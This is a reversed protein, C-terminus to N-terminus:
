QERQKYYEHILSRYGLGKLMKYSVRYNVKTYRGTSLVRIAQQLYHDIERLGDVKNVIPFYWRAWTLSTDDSNDFFKENFYKILRAMVREQSIAKREKWRLLSRMKRRIKGKMKEISATAIDIDNGHCKFGLFEYAEDPSYIKEKSPNVTLEASELFSMVMAKYEQLQELSEAFIIIDDSYRAYIIDQAAFARDMDSLYVNAMFPATPLGAMVGHQEHIINGDEKVRNDLLMRTLFEYLAMDDALVRELMPLLKPISISNFYDHIDLKYAWLGKNRVKRHLRLVADSAVLGRRFAYCNPSFTHDYKYLLHSVVKLVFMEEPEFTYVTRKKNSGAKTLIVKRPIGLKGGNAIRQALSLYNEQEVFSDAQEFERWSFRGKMLRNALYEEWIQQRSLRDIIGDMSLFLSFPSPNQIRSMRPNGPHYVGRGSALDDLRLISCGM